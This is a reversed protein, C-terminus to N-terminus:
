GTSGIFKYINGASTSINGTTATTADTYTTVFSGNLYYDIYAGLDFLSDVNAVITQSTPSLSASQLNINGSSTISNYNVTM